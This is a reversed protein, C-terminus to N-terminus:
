TANASINKSRCEAVAVDIEDRHVINGVRFSERIQQFVIRNQSIKMVINLSRAVSNCDLSFLKVYKGLAIWSRDGPAQDASFDHNFGGSPKSFGFVGGLM